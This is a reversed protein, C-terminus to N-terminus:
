AILGFLTLYGYLLAPERLYNGAAQRAPKSSPEQVLRM